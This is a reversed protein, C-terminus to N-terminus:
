PRVEPGGKQTLGDVWIAFDHGYHPRFTQWFEAAGRQDFHDRLYAAYGLWHDDPMLGMQHHLHYNEAMQFVMRHIVELFLTDGASLTEAEDIKAIRDAYEAQLSLLSLAFESMSHRASAMNVRNTQRMQLGVFLLSGVIAVVGILEGLYYLEELDM